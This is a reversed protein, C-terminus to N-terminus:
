RAPVLTRLQEFAHELKSADPGGLQAMEAKGGGRGGFAVALNKVADGSKFGRKVADDTAAVLLLAKGDETTGGIAVITLPHKQKYRDALQRLVNVDAGDVRQTILTFGNIEESSQASNGPAASANLRMEEIKRELEKVRKQATEIRQPLEAPSSKFLEAAAKLQKEADRLHTFAAEGTVAVIRRVGSALATESQIKLLGIDGSSTVHTGGCLETSEPHVTVVRVTDGYKEGFLAVAGAAKAEQLNMLRTEARVNERIWSNVLDEVRELESMTLATFQSYDFRLYDAEVISGKQNVTEGLVVKLARHLLHTASHNARIRTRRQVDVQLELSDGVKVTGHQVTARHIFVNGAPKQVDTVALKLSAGSVATGRDGVQGGSEAYFPTADFVLEVAENASVSQVEKGNKLLALVTAQAQTQEYGLFATAPLRQSLTMYIDAVKADGHLKSKSESAVDPADSSSGVRDGRVQEEALLRNYGEVDATFGEEKAILETLDWPFGHTQHLDWVVAGSLTKEQSASLKAFELALQQRGKAFTRRFGLEEQKAVQVVLARKEHLEPYVDRMADVAAEVVEHFFPKEDLSLTDIGHRIARRMIRRLVYGRSEASPQVGDAVLFAATRAHDAVVRMAADEDSDWKGTYPRGAIRSIAQLIPAFLDTDYNSTKKQVVSAVRELGSGTDISPKPLPKLVGGAVSREFQMFVLNWIELWNDSAGPVDAPNVTDGGVYFYIESCPGCPGTDGAAWFNDKLGLRYIRGEPVGVKAWLDFAEQDAPVGDEGKFVTVALHSPALRLVGTVFEWAWAIAEAKFYDGFSFNGLMEFFTHHRATFGVNDLDNQKGGARVCKQSSAARQYDRKERGLFLDKFQVMGAVTFLLTPDNSPVLSSSTVRRHQKSEFFSLFAERIEKATLPTSTM